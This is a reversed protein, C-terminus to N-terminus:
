ILPLVPKLNKSENFTLSLKITLWKGSWVSKNQMFISDKGIMIM